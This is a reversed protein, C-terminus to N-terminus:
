LTFPTKDFMTDFHHKSANGACAYAEADKMMSICYKILQPDLHISQEFSLYEPNFMMRYADKVRSDSHNKLGDFRWSVDVGNIIVRVPHPTNSIVKPRTETHYNTPLSISIRSPSTKTVSSINVPKNIQLARAIQNLMTEANDKDENLIPYREIYKDTTIESLHKLNESLHHTPTVIRESFEIVSGYKENILRLEFFHKLNKKDEKMFKIRMTHRVGLSSPYILGYIKELHM